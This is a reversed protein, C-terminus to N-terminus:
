FKKNSRRWIGMREAERILDDRFDPHAISILQEARHWVPRGGLQVVGYETVVYDVLQRPITVVTHPEFGPVIRSKRNGNRDTHTSEICIFSKGGKSLQSFYVFDTMGGNGSIQKPVGAAVSSEANVQSLLDIEIASNISIFNDLGMIKYPDNTYDVPYSAVASNEKMFEHLRPSGVAFTFVSRHRDINKKANTLKGAEYMDLYTDVFMETHCGLDRLDSQAVLQGIATPLGGIGLQVCDGNKLFPMINSAIKREVDSPEEPEPEFLPTDASDEIIADVRSIHVSEEAGGYVVPINRNVEVIVLDAVEIASSHFSNHLGYNFYGQENMPGTRLVFCHKTKKAKEPENYYFSRENFENQPLARMWNTTYRYVVPNYYPSTGPIAQIMRTLKSWHWDHFIFSEPYRCTEPLPPLTVSFFIGVDRLEEHRQALAQEFAVPRGNFQACEIADGSNILGAAEAPTKLRNKYDGTFSMFVEPLKINILKEPTFFRCNSLVTKV